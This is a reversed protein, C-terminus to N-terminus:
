MACCSREVISMSSYEYYNVASRDTIIEFTRKGGVSWLDIPGAVFDRWIQTSRCM